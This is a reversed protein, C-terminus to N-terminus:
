SNPRQRKRLFAPIEDDEHPQDQTTQAQGVSPQPQQTTQTLPAIRNVGDQQPTTPKPELEIERYEKQEYTATQEQQTASPQTNVVEEEDIAYEHVEAKRNFLQEQVREQTQTIRVTRDTSILDHKLGALNDFGTAIM